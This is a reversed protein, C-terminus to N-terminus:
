VDFIHYFIVDAMGVVAVSIRRINNVSSEEIIKKRAIIDESPADRCYMANFDFDVNALSKPSSKLKDIFDLVVGHERERYLRYHSLGGKTKVTQSANRGNVSESLITFINSDYGDDDFRKFNLALLRLFLTLVVNDDIDFIDRSPIVNKDFFSRWSSVFSCVNYRSLQIEKARYRDESTSKWTAANKLFIFKKLATEVRNRNEDFKIVDEIRGNFTLAGAESENDFVYDASRKKMKEFTDVTESFDIFSLNQYKLEFDVVFCTDDLYEGHVLMTKPVNNNSAGGLKKKLLFLCDNWKRLKLSFDIFKHNPKFRLRTTRFINKDHYAYKENYKLSRLQSETASVVPEETIVVNSPDDIYFKYKDFLGSHSTALAFLMTSFNSEKFEYLSNSDVCRMTKSLDVMMESILRVVNTTALNEPTETQVVSKKFIFTDYHDILIKTQSHELKKKGSKYVFRYNKPKSHGSFICDEDLTSKADDFFLEPACSKFTIREVNEMNFLPSEDTNAGVLLRLVNEV